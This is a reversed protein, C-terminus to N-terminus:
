ASAALEAFLLEYAEAATDWSHLRAMVERGRKGLEQRQQQDDLLLCVAAAFDSPDDALRLLESVEPHMAEVGTSNTVVPKEVAM